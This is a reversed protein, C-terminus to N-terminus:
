HTKKRNDGRKPNILDKKPRERGEFRSWGLIIAFPLEEKSAILEQLKYIDRISAINPANALTAHGYIYSGAQRQSVYSVSLRNM